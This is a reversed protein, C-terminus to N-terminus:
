TLFQLGVSTFFRGTVPKSWEQCVPCLMCAHLPRSPTFLVELTGLKQEGNPPHILSSRPDGMHASYLPLRCNGMPAIAVWTVCFLGVGGCWFHHLLLNWGALVTCLALEITLFYLLQIQRNLLQEAEMNKYPGFCKWKSTVFSQM